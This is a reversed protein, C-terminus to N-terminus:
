AVLDSFTSLSVFGILNLGSSKVTFDLDRQKEAVVIGERSGKKDTNGEITGIKRGNITEVICIHGFSKNSASQYIMLAGITPTKSFEFGYQKGSNVFNNRTQMVSASFLKTLIGDITTVAPLVKKYGEKWCLETFYCCWPHTKQFGVGVMMKYFWPTKFGMNGSIEEQGVCQKAFKIVETAILRRKTEDIINDVGTSASIELQKQNYDEHANYTIPGYIGDVKIKYGALNLKTQLEIVSDPNAKDVSLIPQSTKKNKKSM